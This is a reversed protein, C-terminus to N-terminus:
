YTNRGLSTQFANVITAFQSQKADVTTGVSAFCLQRSSYYAASGQENLAGIYIDLNVTAVSLNRNGVLVGNRYGSNFTSGSRSFVFFGRSDTNSGVQYTAGPYVGLLGYYLNNYRTFVYSGNTTFSNNCGIDSLLGDSNTRSYVSLHRFNGLTNDNLATSAFGTTGNPTMGSANHTWGGNFTLNNTGPNKGNIAHSASVGGLVPYFATLSDWIGNSVLSTFLTVTAASQTSNVSGGAATVASLYAYAQTTGSALPTSSPTISPTLTITPTITPTISPTPTLTSTPTVSPSPSPPPVNQCDNWLNTNENWLEDTTNWVCDAPLPSSTPTISPTPTLTSTPTISPTVTLTPTVSPSVVPSTPNNKPNVANGTLMVSGLGSKLSLPKMLENIDPKVVKIYNGVPRYNRGNWNLQAM